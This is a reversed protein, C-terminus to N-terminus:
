GEGGWFFLSLCGLDGDQIEFNGLTSDSNESKKDSSADDSVVHQKLLSHNFQPM